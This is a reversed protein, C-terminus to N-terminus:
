TGDATFSGLAAELLAAAHEQEKAHTDWAAEAQAAHREAAVADGLAAQVQALRGHVFARQHQPLGDHLADQAAVAGASAGATDGLGVCCWALEALAACRLSALGGLLPTAELLHATFLRQAEAHRGLLALAHARLLRAPAIPLVVGTLGCFHEVSEAGALVARVEGAPANGALAARRLQLASLWARDHMSAALTAQDGESTAHLRTRRYWPQAAEFRGARHWAQAAVLCARGRAAHHDAEVVAFCRALFGATAAFDEELCALQALWAAGLAQLPVVGAASGLALVRGFRDRAAADHGGCHLAIGDALHLWGSVVADPRDRYQAHLAALETRAADLRGERTLVAVRRARLRVADRSDAATAAIRVDLAALLPSAM